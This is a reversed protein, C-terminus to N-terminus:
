PITTDYISHLDFGIVRSDAVCSYIPIIEGKVQCYNHILVESRM